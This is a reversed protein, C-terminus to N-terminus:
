RGDQGLAQEERYKIWRIQHQHTTMNLQRWNSGVRDTKEKEPGDTGNGAHDAHIEDPCLM